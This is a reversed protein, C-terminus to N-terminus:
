MWYNIEVCTCVSLSILSHIFAVMKAAEMVRHMHVYMGEKIRIQQREEELKEETEKAEKEPKDTPTKDFYATDDDAELRQKDVEELVEPSAKLVTSHPLSVFHVTVGFNWFLCSLPAIKISNIFAIM